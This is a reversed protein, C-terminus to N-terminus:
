TPLDPAQLVLEACSQDVAGRLAAAEGLGALREQGLRFGQQVSGVLGNEGGAVGARGQRDAVDAVEDDGRDHQFQALAERGGDDAGAVQGPLLGM